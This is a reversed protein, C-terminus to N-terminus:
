SMHVLCLCIESTAAELSCVVALFKWDGDQFFQVNYVKDKITLSELDKAEACIDELGAMLDEYKESVKLIAISHNVFASCARQGEELVTFGVNVVSLGRAIQTGDGTLKVRITNPIEDEKHAKEVLHTLRVMIRERLSQQVGGIGNPASHIEFQANLTRTLSKLKSSSPLNSLMSLEHFAENSVYFKDEVYLVSHVDEKSTTPENMGSYVGSEVNLVEHSGTDLNELEISHPKFGEDECFSLAGQVGNALNKKNYRQQRSYQLWSKSSSGRSNELRGTKLRAIVKAQIKTTKRLVKVESELKKRKTSEEEIQAEVLRENVEFKWMAESGDKWKMLQQQRKKGGLKSFLKGM